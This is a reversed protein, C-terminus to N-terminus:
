TLVVHELNFRFPTSNAGPGGGTMVLDASAIGLLNIETQIESMVPLPIEEGEKVEFSVGVWITSTFQFFVKQGPAISSTTALLRGDRYYHADIAGLPLDNRVQVTHPMYGAHKNLEMGGHLNQVVSYIQGDEAPLEPLYNGYADSVTVSMESAFTFPHYQQQGCHRIVKWAVPAGLGNDIVNQQFIVVPYHRYDNCRNIFNLKIEM